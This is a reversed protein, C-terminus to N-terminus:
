AILLGLRKSMLCSLNELRRSLFNLYSERTEPDDILEKVWFEIENKIWNFQNKLEEKQSSLVIKSIENKTPTTLALFCHPEYNKDIVLDEKKWRGDSVILRDHDFVFIKDNNDMIFNNVNRDINGIWEDFLILKEYDKNNKIKNIIKETKENTKNLAGMKFLATEGIIESTCFLCIPNEQKIWEDHIDSFDIAPNIKNPEILAIFAYEPQNLGMAKGILYASIENILCIDDYKIPKCYCLINKNQYKFKATFVDTTHQSIAKSEWREFSFFHKTTLINIIRM